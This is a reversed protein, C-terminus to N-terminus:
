RPGRVRRCLEDRRARLEALLEGTRASAAKSHRNYSAVEEAPTGYPEFGFEAAIAEYRRREAAACAATMMLSVRTGIDLAPDDFVDRFRSM